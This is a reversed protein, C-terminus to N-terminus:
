SSTGTATTIFSTSSLSLHLSASPSHIPLSLPFPYHIPLTSLSRSSPSPFQTSFYSYYSSLSLTPSQPLSSSCLFALLPSIFSYYLPSFYLSPLPFFPFISPLICLFVFYRLCSCVVPDKRPSNTITFSVLTSFFYIIWIFYPPTSLTLRPRSALHEDM